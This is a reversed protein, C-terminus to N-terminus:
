RGPRWGRCRRRLHARERARQPTDRLRGGEPRRQQQHDVLLAAAHLAQGPAGDRLAGSIAAVPRGATAWASPRAVAAVSRAAPM